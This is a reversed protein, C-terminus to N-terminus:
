DFYHKLTDRKTGWALGGVFIKTYATDGAKGDRKTRKRRTLSDRKTMKPWLESSVAVDPKEDDKKDKEKTKEEELRNVELQLLRAVFSSSMSNTCNTWGLSTIPSPPPSVMIARHHFMTTANTLSDTVSITLNRSGTARSPSFHCPACSCM